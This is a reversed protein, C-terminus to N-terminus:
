SIITASAREGAAIADPIGVGRLMNGAIELGPIRAVDKEIRAVRDLHGLTYQPSAANMRVVRTLVPEGSINGTQAIEDRVMQILEDDSANLM